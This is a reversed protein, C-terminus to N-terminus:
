SAGSGGASDEASDGASDRKSAARRERMRQDLSPRPPRVPRCQSSASDRLRSDMSSSSGIEDESSASELASEVVPPTSHSTSPASMSSARPTPTGPTPADTAQALPSSTGPGSARRPSLSGLLSTRRGSRRGPSEEADAPADTTAFREFLSTRRLRPEADAPADADAPPAATSPRRSKGMFGVVSPRPAKPFSVMPLSDAADGSSSRRRGSLRVGSISERARGCARSARRATKEAKAKASEEEDLERDREMEMM